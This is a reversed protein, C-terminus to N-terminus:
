PRRRHLKGTAQAVPTSVSISKIRTGSRSMNNTVCHYSLCCDETSSYTVNRPEFGPDGPGYSKLKPGYRRPWALPGPLRTVGGPATENCTLFQSPSNCFNPFITQSIIPNSCAFVFCTQVDRGSSWHYLTLTLLNLLFTKSNFLDERQPCLIRNGLCLLQFVNVKSPLLLKSFETFFTKSIVSDEPWPCYYDVPRPAPTQSSLLCTSPFCPKARYNGPETIRVLSRGSRLSLGPATADLGSLPRPPPRTM